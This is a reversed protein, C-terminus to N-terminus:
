KKRIFFINVGTEEGVELLENGTKKCWKPVDEKSGPDTGLMKLVKGSKMKKMAKALKMIPM